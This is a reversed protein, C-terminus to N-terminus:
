AAADKVMQELKDANTGFMEELLEGNKWVHFTPLMKIGLDWGHLQKSTLTSTENEVTM